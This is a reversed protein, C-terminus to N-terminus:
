RLYPRKKEKTKKDKTREQLDKEPTNKQLTSKQILFNDSRVNRFNDSQGSGYNGSGTNGLFPGNQAPTFCIDGNKLTKPPEQPNPPVVHVRGFGSALCLKKM